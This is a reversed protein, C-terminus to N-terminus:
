LNVTCCNSVLKMTAGNCMGKQNSVQRQQCRGLAQMRAQATAFDHLQCAKSCYDVSFCRGCALLRKGPVLYRPKQCYNCVKADGISLSAMMHSDTPMFDMPNLQLCEMTVVVAEQNMLEVPVTVQGVPLTTRTEGHDNNMTYVLRSTVLKAIAATGITLAPIDELPPPTSRMTELQEETPPGDSPLVSTSYWSPYSHEGYAGDNTAIELELEEVHNLTGFPTEIRECFRLVSQHIEGNRGSGSGAAKLDDLSKYFYM